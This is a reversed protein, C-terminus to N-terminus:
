WIGGRILVSVIICIISVILFLVAFNFYLFKIHALKAVLIIEQALHYDMNDAKYVSTFGYEKKIDHIYTEPNFKIINRYSILSKSNKRRAKLNVKVNRSVLAVFSYLVSILAFIITAIAFINQRTNASLFTTAFAIVASSLTLVVSHKAEAYKMNEYVIGYIYKLTQKM